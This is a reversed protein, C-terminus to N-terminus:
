SSILLLTSSSDVAKPEQIGASLTQRVKRDTAGEGVGGM